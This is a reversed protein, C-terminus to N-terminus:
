ESVARWTASGKRAPCTCTVVGSPQSANAAASPKVRVPDVTSAAAPPTAPYKVTPSGSPWDKPCSYWPPHLWCARTARTAGM